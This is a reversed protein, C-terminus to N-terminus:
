AIIELGTGCESCFKSTAKNVKGCNVCKPKIEVTVPKVLKESDDTKGLLQFIMVYKDSELESVTTMTFKQESISGPATIGVDNKQVSTKIEVNSSVPVSKTSLTVSMAHKSNIPTEWAIDHTASTELTIKDTTITRCEYDNEQYFPQYQQKLTWSTPALFPREKKKEFQFEVRILGDDLKVGRHNEIGATREIFKFKNGADLSEIFRELEFEAGQKLVLGNKTVNKGDISIRVVATTTNLNKLLISYEKGFPIYVKEGFERLIKGDAKIAAVLKNM